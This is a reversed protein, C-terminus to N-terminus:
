MVTQLILDNRGTRRHPESERFRSMKEEAPSDRDDSPCLHGRDFGSNPYDAHRVQYAGTPLVTEAIFNGSYRSVSGKWASSLHWSVWNPIGRGANYSLTYIEKDLLYNNPDSGSAQSLNGLALNRDRTPLSVDPKVLTPKCLPGPWGGATYGMPLYYCPSNEYHTQLTATSYSYYGRTPFSFYKSFM